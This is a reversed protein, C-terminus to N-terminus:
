RKDRYTDVLFKYYKLSSDALEFSKDISKLIVDIMSLQTHSFKSATAKLSVLTKLHEYEDKKSDFLACSVDYYKLYSLYLDRSYSGHYIGILVENSKISVDQSLEKLEAKMRYLDFDCSLYDYDRQLKELRVSLSDITIAASSTDQASAYVSTVAFIILLLVKKM